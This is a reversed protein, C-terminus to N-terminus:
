AESGNIEGNEIFRTNGIEVIRRSHTPCYFMYEKSREPYGLFYRNIIGADL